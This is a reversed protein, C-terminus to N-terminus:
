SQLRRYDSCLRDLEQKAGGLKGRQMVTNLYFDPCRCQEVVM